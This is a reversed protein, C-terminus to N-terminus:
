KYSGETLVIIYLSHVFDTFEHALPSALTMKGMM